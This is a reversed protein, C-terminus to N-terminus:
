CAVIEGFAKEMLLTIIRKNFPEHRGDCEHNVIGQCKKMFSPDLEIHKGCFLSQSYHLVHVGEGGGGFLSINNENPQLAM